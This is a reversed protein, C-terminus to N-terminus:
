NPRDDTGKGTLAFLTLTLAHWAAHAMHNLGSESDNEERSWFAFAHRLMADFSSSWQYGQRFNYDGYAPSGDPREATAGFHYVKGLEQLAEWPMAHLQIDKTDKRGTM